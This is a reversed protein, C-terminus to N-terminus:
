VVSKRDSDTITTFLNYFYQPNISAVLVHSLHGQADRVPVCFPIYRHASQAAFPDNPYRGQRSTEIVFETLPENKLVDICAYAEQNGSSQTVSALVVGQTDLLDLARLQLSIRLQERLVNNIDLGSDQLSLSEALTQMSSNVSQFSRVVTDELAHLLVANSTDQEALSRAVGQRATHQLVVWFCLLVFLATLFVWKQRSAASKLLLVIHALM